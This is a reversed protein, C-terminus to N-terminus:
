ELPDSGIDPRFHHEDETIEILLMRRQVAVPM